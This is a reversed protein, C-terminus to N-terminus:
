SVAASLAARVATRAVMNSATTEMEADTLDPTDEEEDDVEFAVM